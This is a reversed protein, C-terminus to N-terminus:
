LGDEETHLPRFCLIWQLEQDRLSEYKYYGYDGPEMMVVFPENGWRVLWKGNSLVNFETCIQM